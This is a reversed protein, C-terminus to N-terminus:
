PDACTKFSCSMIHLRNEMCNKESVAKRGDTVSWQSRGRMSMAQLGSCSTKVVNPGQHKKSAEGVSFFFMWIPAQTLTRGTHHNEYIHEQRPLAVQSDVLRFACLPNECSKWFESSIIDMVGSRTSRAAGLRLRQPSIPPSTPSTHRKANKTKGPTKSVKLHSQCISWSPPGLTSWCSASEPHLASSQLWPWRLPHIIQYQLLHSKLVNRQM